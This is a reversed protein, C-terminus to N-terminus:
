VTWKQVKNKNTKGKTSQPNFYYLLTKLKCNEVNHFCRQSVASYVPYTIGRGALRMM